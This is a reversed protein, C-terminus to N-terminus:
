SSSEDHSAGLLAHAVDGPTEFLVDPELRTLATRNAYGWLVAGATVGAKRAATIDRTEDGIAIVQHPALGSRRLVRKFLRAKGFLSARCEFLEVRAITEPTLVTRVNAESNSTVIAIRVGGADLAEFLTDIGDFPAIQDIQAALLAHVHRAIAPLKWRSIGLHRIVERSTLGRLMELEDKPTARFRFRRALDDAISLFWDGSNALTGDFDFIALAYGQSRRTAGAGDISLAGGSM